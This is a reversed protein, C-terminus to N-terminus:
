TGGGRNRHVSTVGRWAPRVTPKAPSAALMAFLEPPCRFSCAPRVQADLGVGLPGRVWVVLKKRKFFIAERHIANVCRSRQFVDARSGFCFTCGTFLDGVEKLPPKTM